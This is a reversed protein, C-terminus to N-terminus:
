RNALGCRAHPTAAAFPGIAAVTAPGVGPVRALAQVSSFPGRRARDAVIRAALVPGIGPLRDLDAAADTNLDLPLGLRLRRVAPMCGLAARGWPTVLLRSGPLLRVRASRAGAVPTAAPLGAAALLDALRAGAPLALLRPRNGVTVVDALIRTSDPELLPTAARPTRSAPAAELPPRRLGDGSGWSVAARWVAAAGLVALTLAAAAGIPGSWAM